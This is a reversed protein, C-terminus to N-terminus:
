LKGARVRSLTELAMGLYSAIYTLPVRNVIEPQIELLKKYRERSSDIRMLKLHQGGKILYEGLVKAIGTEFRPFTELFHYFDHRSIWVVAVPEMAVFSAAAPVLEVFSGYPFAPENEFYFGVTNEKGEEDIYYSRVAGMIVFSASKPIEGHRYLLDGKQYNAVRIFQLLMELEEEQINGIYKSVYAIATQLHNETSSM